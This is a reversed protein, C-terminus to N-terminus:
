SRESIFDAACPFNETQVKIAITTPEITPAPMKESGCAKPLAVPGKPATTAHDIAPTPM